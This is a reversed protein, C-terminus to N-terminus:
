EQDAVSEPVMDAAGSSSVGHPNGRAADAQHLLQKGHTKNSWASKNATSMHSVQRAGMKSGRTLVGKRCCIELAENPGGIYWMLEGSHKSVGHICKLHTVVGEGESSSGRRSLSRKGM